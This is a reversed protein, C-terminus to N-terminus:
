GSRCPPPHRLFFPLSSRTMHMLVSFSIPMLFFFFFFFFFFFRRAHITRSSTRVAEEMAIECFPNMSMKVNNLEVGGKNAAVRVQRTFFLIDNPSSTLSM